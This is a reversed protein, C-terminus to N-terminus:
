FLSDIKRKSKEIDEKSDVAELIIRGEYKPILQTFIMDFDLDGEGLTLHEHPVGFRKDAIHICEPKRMKIIDRLHENDNIHALDLLLGIDANHDFVVRLDEVTNFFRDIISNNEVYLKVKRKRFENNISKLKGSLVYVTEDSIEESTCVPHIIVESHNFFDVLELLRQGHKEFDNIDFVAHIIIPFGCDKIENEKPEQLSDVSLVGNFFWIQFFDFGLTKAFEIESQYNEKYRLAMGNHVM